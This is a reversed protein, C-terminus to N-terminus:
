KGEKLAKKAAEVMEEVTPMVGGAHGLYHIPKRGGVSLRVDDIMQGTSSMEVDLFAKVHDAKSLKRLAEEPFPWLTIPRFLGVKLGEARLIHICNGGRLRGGLVDHHTELVEVEFPDPAGGRRLEVAETWGHGYHGHSCLVADATLRFLRGLGARLMLARAM